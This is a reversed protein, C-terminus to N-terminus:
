SHTHTHTGRVSLKGREVRVKNWRQKAKITKEARHRQEEEQEGGGVEGQGESDRRLSLTMYEMFCTYINSQRRWAVIKGKLLSRGTEM